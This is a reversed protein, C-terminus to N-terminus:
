RIPKDPCCRRSPSIGLTGFELRLVTALIIGVDGVENRLPFAATERLIRAVRRATEELVM